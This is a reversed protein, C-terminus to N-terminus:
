LKKLGFLGPFLIPLLILAISAFLLNLVGVFTAVKAAYAWIASKRPASDRARKAYLNASRWIGAVSWIASAWTGVLPVIMLTVPDAALRFLAAAFGALFFMSLSITSGVIIGNVWFAWVLSDQGNWHRRIYAIM